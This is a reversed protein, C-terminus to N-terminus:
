LLAPLQMIKHLTLTINEIQMYFSCGVNHLEKVGRAVLYAKNKQYIRDKERQNEINLLKKKTRNSIIIAIVAVGITTAALLVNIFAEHGPDALWEFMKDGKIKPNKKM